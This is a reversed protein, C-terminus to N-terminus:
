LRCCLGQHMFAIYRCTGLVTPLLRHLQHAHDPCTGWRYDHLVAWYYFFAALLEALSESNPTGFGAYHELDNCYDCCWQGPCPNPPAGSTCSVHSDNNGACPIIRQM